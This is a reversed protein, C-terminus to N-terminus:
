SRALQRASLNVSMSLGHWASDENRLARLEACAQRTVWRGLPVIAGTEEALPIFEAPSVNGLRPHRWRLLAEFGAISRTALDFIPQYHM